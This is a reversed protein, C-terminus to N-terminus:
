GKSTSTRYVYGQSNEDVAIGDAIVNDNFLGEPVAGVMPYTVRSIGNVAPFYVMTAGRDVALATPIGVNTADDFRTPTALGLDIHSVRTMGPMPVGWFLYPEGLAIPQANPADMYVNKSDNGMTTSASMIGYTPETFYVRGGRVVIGRPTVSSAVITSTQ